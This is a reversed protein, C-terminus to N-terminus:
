YDPKLVDTRWGHLRPERMLGTPGEYVGMCGVEALKGIVSAPYAAWEAAQSPTFGTGVKCTTGKFRVVLAVTPRGTKEGEGVEVGVVELTFSLLPKVKIFSGCSGGGPTYTAHPNGAVVGDYGGHAKLARAFQEAHERGTCITPSKIDLKILRSLYTKTSNLIPLDTADDITYDVVDFAAFGLDAQNYQRRFMGSLEAFEFGPSWAEGLFAVGGKTKSLWKHQELLVDYIHRMSTVEKGERSLIFDLKGDWFCVMAFCGDWKPMLIRGEWKFAAQQKSSLKTFEVPKLNLYKSM